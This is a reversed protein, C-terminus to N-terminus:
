IWGRHAARVGVEFRSRANLRDRLDAAMRKVTRVSVGLRRAAVEDTAGAALIEILARLQPSLQEDPPEAIVAPRGGIPVAAVWVQEFLAYAAAVIGQSRVELAGQLPVRPDIPLLAIRRDYVIMSIPIGSATRTHTPVPVGDPSPLVQHIVRRLKVGHALMRRFAAPGAYGETEGWVLSVCEHRTREALDATRARVIAGTELRVIPERVDADADIRLSELVRYDLEPMETSTQM